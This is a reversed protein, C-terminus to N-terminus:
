STGVESNVIARFLEQVESKDMTVLGEDSIQIKDLIVNVRLTLDRCWKILDDSGIAYFGERPIVVNQITIDTATVNNAYLNM